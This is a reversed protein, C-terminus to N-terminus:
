MSPALKSNVYVEDFTPKRTATSMLDKLPITVEGKMWYDRAKGSKLEVGAAHVCNTPRQYDDNNKSYFPYVPHWEYRDMFWAHLTGANYNVEFDLRDIAGFAFQFDHSQYDDQELTVHGTFTGTTRGKPLMDKIKAQVKADTRLMTALNADENFEKGGGKYMFWNLHDMAVSVPFMTAQGAAKLVAEPDLHACTFSIFVASKTDAQVDAWKGSPQHNHMVGPHFQTKSAPKPDRGDPDNFTVPNGGAYLYSSLDVSNNATDPLAPDASQWVGTRPDYYRAGYYYLNTEPDIEKGTYQQPVPQSPHESVWTEGGPIYKIQEALGGSADTVFGTSGLQDAHSYFQRDELRNQPEVTKTVLKAAGIYVHKFEQNGRTSYNQNPYIHFQASDKVIRQGTDDYGYRAANPTGGANDCSSPDQPLTQSQVNEHTCALRNEEDWILQRRPQPQQDRSIQNGDADYAFTQIGIVSPAHPRGGGYTYASTYTLKGDVKTNGNSVLEHVQAKNTLNSISDYSQDLRYNDAQPGRSQYTGEAHVLRYLDDYRFTETSPGGVQTGVSPGSPPLTDNVISTVNGVNDYSYNLNEFVYGQAINAKLNALRQTAPDYTYRTRTGNGTDLRARQGFKDYALRTLYQYTNAGKIGTAGDVQGGSDYHYSLVEGDPYTLTLMRNWSDFRYRTVFTSVHSGQATVTRTEKVVEGLPGYERSLTGAGDTVAIVRNAGNNPAGPGGYTYSVNNATFVPYRIRSLRNFDYDYEIAKGQSALDAMVKRIVNGALDYATDTRGTDPSAVSTRRGFNDYTMTTTNGRDDVISTEQGLADYGFSTWIVPQGGAPNFEKVATTLGRVDLYDRKSRGSADTAVREFRTAGSRDPAFGYAITSTTADPLVISTTRDLADFTTVTPPVPDLAPNFTANAAGKPEVTPFHKRVVRGLADFVSRGSVVMVDSPTADAGAAVAADTKTQIVRGLGDVFMITDITDPRVSGDAQRDVHRTVAYPVAAEPHYEFDITVRNEPAEYPGTVTDLRGAADYTNRLTQNNLDTSTAVAGFRLDYTSRSQFGFSDTVSEVYTDVTSDYTYEQRYPQGNKNGPGTYARLNGNALYEMDTVAEQGASLRARIRTVDGTACDVTVEHHRMAVGGGTVDVVTAVGVVHSAQCAPDSASYAMRKDVDDATGADGSDFSRTMNGFQDYEMTTFTAVAPTAQGEFFRRDARVLQPFLTATTSAPDPTAGPNEADRLVYTNVTETFTRGSADSTTSRVALGRLYPGDTRYEQTVTRLVAEGAGPDRHQEVVKAYGNFQRELRDQVGGSYEYTTLRTDPGDGPRGDNVAVRSLVFKSEPLAVTNGDRRYDFEMSGGLPRSVGRLLNTRFTTNESVLLQDDRTSVLQDAFGDGNIDRLMRESRGLGTDADGGPNIIACIEIFCISFTFYAGGGLSTNRDEAVGPLGGRFEVPPEFGNGTNIAVTMPDGALVRDLLGDGNVDSLTVRASTAGESYSAGGAFGYFDTNFGINLGSNGGTSANVASSALTNNPGPHRWPEAAGFKYGLNLAVNGNEYVRDPLGDGNMDMLDSRIDSSNGGINGGVGLPPLDNGGESTNAPTQASPGAQGRGTSITRAASGASANGAVNGSRRVVGEPTSGRTAGLGGTPDTYQIGGAGVVDPFGDGNMDIFDLQGTSEGTAISGGLSGVTGGVSGTLSLQASRALRPVAIAEGGVDSPGPVSISQTGLRSSSAGTRTVFSHDGATWRDQAPLPAFPVVKPPTVSPDQGFSGSQGQPDVNSPLQDKFSDDLFLDSQVVPQIARDRNGNYGLAGWGRYPQPFANEKVASHFDSPVAVAPDDEFAVTVSQSVLFPTLTPDANSFDFFLEDDKAVDITFAGPASVAGEHIDFARKALLAGRRKVTFTVKGSPHQGEFDFVLSPDVTLQGDDPVTFSGQPTTLRSEPYMDTAFPPFVSILPNGAPDTLRDVGEAATYVARPVWRITDLDIPSDTRVRWTLSQGKQVTVDLNVPISGTGAAPLSQELVPTGDRSIVVSIDDTTVASKQLDGSLHLTGTLPAKLQAARGGLTFDRSAQYRYVPLGNVDTLDGPVNLYTVRPDWSVEDLSGDFGSQVRFYLRQGRTVPISSVGDPEHAANDRPGITASWLEADEQQIAVRVGDALKSHARADATQASLAVAGEVRVVGDFPAVWRRVTDLLPYSDIFRERDTAFDGLLSPDVQGSTVPVPTDSSIGYVPVGGAGIRGFLVNGGDVLDAIGDGNVDSLYRSTTSFSTVHDLQLAAPDPYAEIGLTRSDSTEDMIGPLALPQAQDAFRPQGTPGSLNKRYRVTGGDRFVKDPLNDGDVDALAVLGSDTTHNFGVKVGISGSKSPSEGVGLYLHGGAGFSTNASLASANGANGATLNLPTSGLNDAPVTWPVQRFARYNGETDRVDDHYSFVHQAVQAGSSDLQSLSHLLTKRFAGTTYALEYRRILTTDLTVDIRRLLDATVRKFGGRADITKDVRLGEGLERDRVFTIAYHGETDGRGTYTIRQPYLNRGAQTGGDIGNDDVRVYHYRMTNGHADRVESLAWRFVNGGDDALTADPRTGYLWHTGAKDTVEWTYNGPNDGHRVIRSFGGEVRTHFVKEAARAPPPGRNALPTLQEGGLLYSETERAAEYRPVGWRTDIEVTPTALDWGVGLWGNGGQSSYTVSVQPQLGLRGAPVDIPYTLKNDGSNGPNPPAILNIRSSPDAAQIGKIENPNFSQTGPHEPVTSTSNIMDTFHNTVSTVTHGDVDVSVRELVQWCAAIDNYFYTFVDDAVMDAPMLQPDYPLTVEVPAEFIFPHPTFRFGSRLKGTVNMMGSDLKPVATQSLATIGISVPQLVAGPKLTVQAGGFAVTHPVTEAPSVMEQYDPLPEAAADARPLGATSAAPADGCTELGTPVLAPAAPSTVARTRESGAALGSMVVILGLVGAAIKTAAAHRSLARNM